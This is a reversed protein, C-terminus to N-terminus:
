IIDDLLGLEKAQYRFMEAQEIYLDARGQVLMKPIMLADQVETRHKVNRLAHNHWGSGRMNVHVVYNLMEIDLLNKALKFAPLNRNDKATHMVFNTHYFPVTTKVTYAEREETPVTFFGDIEGAKVLQQCRRWPCALRVIKLGLQNVLVEEVFDAQIGASVGHDNWAFPKYAEGFGIIIEDTTAQAQHFLFLAACLLVQRILM